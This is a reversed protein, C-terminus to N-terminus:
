AHASRVRARAHAKECTSSAHRRRTHAPHDTSFLQAKCIHHQMCIALVRLFFLIDHTAEVLHCRRKLLTSTPRRRIEGPRTSRPRSLSFSSFRAPMSHGWSSSVFSGFRRRHRILREDTRTWRVEESGYYGVLLTLQVVALDDGRTVVLCSM